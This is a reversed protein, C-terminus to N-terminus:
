KRYSFIVPVLNIYDSRLDLHVYTGAIDISWGRKSAEKVLRHLLVPSPRKIDLACTDIHHHPNNFMHLSRPHGGIVKNYEPSRCCSTVNFPFDCAVRLEELHNIFGPCLKIIKTQSCELEEQTFHESYIM